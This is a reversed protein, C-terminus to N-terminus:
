SVGYTSNTAAFQRKWNWDDLVYTQFDHEALEVEDSLNWEVMQIARDYDPTHDQPEPLAITLSVRKGKRADALREDLQAVVAARFGEQAQLFQARHTERNATLTQLLRDKSVTINEM